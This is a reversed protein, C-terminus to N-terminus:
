DPARGEQVGCESQAFPPEPWTRARRPGMGPTFLLVRNTGFHGSKFHRGPVRGAPAGIMRAVPNSEMGTAAFVYVLGMATKLVCCGELDIRCQADRLRRSDSPGKCCRM